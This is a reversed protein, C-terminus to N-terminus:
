VFKCDCGLKEELLNRIMEEMHKEAKDYLGEKEAEKLMEDEIKKLNKPVDSASIPNLINNDEEIKLSENNINNCLVVPKPLRVFVVNGVSRDVKIDKVNYGVKIVGSYHITIRNETFRLEQGFLERCYAQTDTGTYKYEYANVEGIEQLIHEAIYIDAETQAKDTANGFLAAAGLKLAVVFAMSIIVTKGIFYIGKNCVGKTKKGAESIHKKIKNM